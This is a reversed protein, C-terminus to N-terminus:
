RSLPTGMSRLLIPFTLMTSRNEDAAVRHAPLVVANAAAQM